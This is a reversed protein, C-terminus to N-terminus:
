KFKLRLYLKRLSFKFLTFKLNKDSKSVMYFWPNGRRVDGPLYDFKFNQEWAIYNFSLQDRRSHNLVFEWWREMAKIVDTENHKRVLVGGKILGNNAPYNQTKFFEIQKSIIQLDDKLIGKEHYLKIIADYEKFICNRPDSTTQQHDFVLMHADGKVGSIIALPSSIVLYDGDIYISYDYEKLHLHPLIKYYRNNRVNDGHIYEKVVRVEWGKAKRPRDSFCIFDIGQIKNQPYLTVNDGFIATYIVVKNM